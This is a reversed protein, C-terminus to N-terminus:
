KLGELAARKWAAELAQPGDLSYSRKLASAIGYREADRLFVTFHRAGGARVLYDVLSVSECYYGAVKETPTDKMSLLSTLAIWEGREACRPLARTFRAVEEPSGALIAMGEEAWKPPPRDPFLDALVVHTLERPLANAAATPDDARLDIRREAARGNTLKVTTNGTGQSPKGTARAYDTATPHLV